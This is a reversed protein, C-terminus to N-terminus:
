IRQYERHFLAQWRSYGLEGPQVKNNSLLKYVGFYKYGGSECIFVIREDGPKMSIYNEWRLDVYETINNGRNYIINSASKKEDVEIAIHRIFWVGRKREADVKHAYLPTGQAGFYHAQAMDWGLETCLKEYIARSNTGYWQGIKLHELNNIAM